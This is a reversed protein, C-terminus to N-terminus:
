PLQQLHDLMFELQIIFLLQGIVQGFTLYGILILDLNLDAVFVAIDFLSRVLVAIMYISIAILARNKNKKWDKLTRITSLVGLTFYMAEIALFTWEVM